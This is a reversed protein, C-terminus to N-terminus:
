RDGIMSEHITRVAEGPACGDVVTVTLAVGDGGNEIAEFGPAAQLRVPGDGIDARTCSHERLDKEGIAIGDQGDFGVV